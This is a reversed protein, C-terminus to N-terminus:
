LTRLEKVRQNVAAYEKGNINTTRIAANAKVLSQWDM